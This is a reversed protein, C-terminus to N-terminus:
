REIDKSLNVIAALVKEATVSCIEDSDRALKNDGCVCPFASSYPQGVMDFKALAWCLKEMFEKRKM